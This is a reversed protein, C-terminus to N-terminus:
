FIRTLHEAVPNRHIMVIEYATLPDEYRFFKIDSDSYYLLGITDHKYEERVLINYIDTQRKHADSVRRGSKLEMPIYVPTETKNKRDFLVGFLLLDIKGKLGYVSSRLMIESQVVKDIRLSLKRYPEVTLEEHDNIHKKYFIALNKLRGNCANWFDGFAKKVLFMDYLM